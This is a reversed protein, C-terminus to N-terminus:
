NYYQRTERMVISWFSNQWFHM